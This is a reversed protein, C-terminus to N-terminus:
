CIRQGRSLSNHRVRFTSSPSGTGIRWLGITDRESLTNLDPGAGAPLEIVHPPVRTCSVSQLEGACPLTCYPVSHVGKRDLGDQQLGAQPHQRGWSAAPKDARSGILLGVSGRMRNDRRWPLSLSGVTKFAHKRNFSPEQATDNGRRCLRHMPSSAPPAFAEGHLEQVSENAAM